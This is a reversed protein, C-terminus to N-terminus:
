FNKNFVPQVQSNCSIVADAKFYFKAGFELTNLHLAHQIYKEKSLFMEEPSLHKLLSDIKEYQEKAQSFEKDIKDRSLAFDSFCFLTNAPMFKFISERSEEVSKRQVNPLVA